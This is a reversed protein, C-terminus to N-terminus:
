RSAPEDPRNWGRDRALREAAADLPEGVMSAEIQRRVIPSLATAAQRYSASSGQVDAGSEISRIRWLDGTGCAIGSISNEERHTVFARCYEGTNAVFSIVLRIRESASQEATLRSTLVSALDGGATLSAGHVVVDPAENTLRPIWLGILIGLVLSAAAALWYRAVPQRPQKRARAAGIDPVRSGRTAEVLPQPVPEDLTGSFARHLRERLVRQEAVQRALGPDAAVASAVAAQKVADLEGDIYAMLEEDSVNM